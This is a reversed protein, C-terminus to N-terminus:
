HSSNLRTSKRDIRDIRNYLTGDVPLMVRYVGEGLVVMPIALAVVVILWLHLNRM